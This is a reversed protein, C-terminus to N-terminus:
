RAPTWDLVAVRWRDTYLLRLHLTGADTPVAADCWTTTSAVLPTGTVTRAPVVAPDVQRLTAALDETSLAALRDAWTAADPGTHRTWATAFAAAVAGPNGPVTTPIPEQEQVSDDDHDGGEAETAAPTSSPGTTDSSAAARGQVAPGPPPGTTATGSAAPETSAAQPHEGSLSRVVLVTLAALVALVVALRRWNM